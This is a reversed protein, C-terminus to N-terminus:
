PCAGQDAVSTELMFNSEITHREAFFIHIPYVSGLELGYEGSHDDLSVSASKPEHLGGLNIALHRNVFVWMDDDGTFSFLEGGSYKFTLKTELTFHYDHPLGENGFGRPDNDIPFFAANKYEFFGPRTNSLALRLEYDIHRNIPPADNYWTDFTQKSQVTHISPDGSWEPKDDAGLLPKVLAPEDGPQGRLDFEFDPSTKPSFDRVVAALVPPNPQPADCALWAGDECREKGSGCVTKCDREVVPVECHGFRGDECHQLGEGCLTECPFDLPPVECKGWAGAACTQSGEGCTGNCSREVPPVDCAQWRGDECSQTGEGCDNQCARSTSPVVCAGWSGDTCAQTGEGCQNECAREEGEEACPDALWLGTRGCGPLAATLLAALTTLRALTLSTQHMRAPEGDGAADHGPKARGNPGTFRATV